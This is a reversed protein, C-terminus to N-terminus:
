RLQLPKGEYFDLIKLRFLYDYRAILLENEAINLNTQATTLELTNVAGLQHRKETNEFATRTAEYTRQAAELQKRGARANAIATQIDNKLQQRTQTQQMQASLVGLRAREVSLRNRGNSYLPISLNVGVGQGFNQDIQDFYPVRELTFEESLLTIPVQQGMFDVTLTGGPVLNGTFVPRRFQTSYNSSLNAFIGLTPYYGSRALGIGEQASSVRL